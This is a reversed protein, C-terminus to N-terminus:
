SGLLQSHYSGDGSFPLYEVVDQPTHLQINRKAAGHGEITESWTCLQSRRMPQTREVLSPSLKWTAGAPSIAESHHLHYAVPLACVRDVVAAPDAMVCGAM